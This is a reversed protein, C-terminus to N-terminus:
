KNGWIHKYKSCYKYLYWYYKEPFIEKDFWKNFHVLCYVTLYQYYEKPFIEKDFWKDFYDSCYAALYWYEKITFTKKDFFDDFYFVMDKKPLFFLRDARYKDGGPDLVVKADSPITVPRVIGGCYFFRHLYKKTTFYIGGPVCSKEPDDNFKVHDVVLGDHYQLGKHCENINIMKYYTIKRDPITPLTKM